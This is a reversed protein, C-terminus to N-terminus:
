GYQVFAILFQYVHVSHVPLNFTLRNKKYKTLHLPVQLVALYFSSSGPTVYGLFEWTFASRESLEVLYVSSDPTVFRLSARM